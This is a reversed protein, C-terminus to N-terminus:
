QAWAPDGGAKRLADELDDIAKQDANIRNEQDRVAQEKSVADTENFYRVMGLANLDNRLSTLKERDERLKERADAFKQRWTREDNKADTSAQVRSDVSSTNANGVVSITSSRPMNENTFVVPANQSNKQNARARRSAEAVSNVTSSACQTKMQTPKQAQTSQSGQGSQQAGSAAWGSLSAVLLAASALGLTRRM